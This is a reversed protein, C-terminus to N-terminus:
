VGVVEDRDPAEIDLDERRRWGILILGLEFLLGMPLWLMLFTLDVTPTVLAAALLMAFWVIGRQKRISELDLVGLREILIMVLPTQFSIGFILPMIIAFSLWENLRPDPKLDFWANFSLLAKITLPMVIFQCLLAGGLFLGIAFPLSGYVYQKEHPYLGSAVFGWIEWFILPSAFIIGAVLCVKIYVIAPEQISLTSLQDDGNLHSLPRNIEIGMVAPSSISVPLTVTESPSVARVGPAPDAADDKWAYESAPRGALADELAAKPVLLNIFNTRTNLRALEGRNAELDKRARDVRDARYIALEKTIPNTIMALLSGGFCFAVVMGCLLWGIARLLHTRLEDLHDGFSMRTHAFYDDPDGYRDYPSAMRTLRSPVRPENLIDPALRESLWDSDAGRPPNM